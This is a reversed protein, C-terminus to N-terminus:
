GGSKSRWYSAVLAARSGAQAKHLLHTVHAEVTGESVRLAVAITKNAAGGALLALVERERPSLGWRAAAAALRVSDEPPAQRVALTVEPVGPSSVRTRAYGGNARLGELTGTWDEELLAQGAANAHLVRGRGGLLFAPAAIAEMAPGLAQARVRQEALQRELRLRKRLAPVLRQLAAGEGEGFRDRRFGGVWALLSPGDCILARLQDSHELGLQSFLPWMATRVVASPDFDDFALARNRQWPEPQSADYLGFRPRPQGGVFGCFADVMWPRFSGSMGTVTAALPVHKGIDIGYSIACDMHLLEGLAPVIEPLARDHLGELRGLRDGIALVGRRERPELRLASAGRTM